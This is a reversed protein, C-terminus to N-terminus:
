HGTEDANERPPTPSVPPSWSEVVQYSPLDLHICAPIGLSQWFAYADLACHQSIYLSLVTGHTVIALTQAPHQALAAQVAVDFRQSAQRATEQGFVLTDPKVFFRAVQAKFEAQTSYAVRPREHEHLGEIVEVPLGLRLALIQATQVAKPEVSSIVAQIGRGELHEALSGARAIGLTSLQWQNAPKSPDIQPNAHRILYLM